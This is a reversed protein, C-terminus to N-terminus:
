SSLRCAWFSHCITYLYQFPQSSQGGNVSRVCDGSKGTELQYAAHTLPVGLLQRARELGPHDANSLPVLSGGEMAAIPVGDMYALRNGPVAAVRSGPTLIGALNLPDCASVLVFRGSAQQGKVRRLLDVAEPLAFQEGVFGSVFRGGRVEGRAELRRLVRVLDRWRLALADRALLEPFVIGYRLLLQRAVAETRDEVPNPPELM